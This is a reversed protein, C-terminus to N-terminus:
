ISVKGLAPKDAEVQLLPQGAALSLRTIFSENRFDNPQHSVDESLDELLCLAEKGAALAWAKHVPQFVKKLFPTMEDAFEMSIEIQKKITERVASYKNTPHPNQYWRDGLAERIQEKEAVLNRLRLGDETARDRHRKVYRQLERGSRALCLHISVGLQELIDKQKQDEQLNKDVLVHEKFYQFALEAYRVCEQYFSLATASKKIWSDNGSFDPLATHARLSFFESLELYAAAVYVSNKQEIGKAICKEYATKAQQIFNHHAEETQVLLPSKLFNRAEVYLIEAESIPPAPLAPDKKLLSQVKERNKTSAQKFKEKDKKVAKQREAEINKQKEEEARFLEVYAADAKARDDPSEPTPDVYTSQSIALQVYASLLFNAKMGDIISQVYMRLKILKDYVGTFDTQEPSSKINQITFPENNMLAHIFSHIMQYTHVESFSRNGFAYLKPLLIGLADVIELTMLYRYYTKMIIKHNDDQLKFAESDYEVDSEVSCVTILGNIVREIEHTIQMKNAESADASPYENLYQPLERLLYFLNMYYSFLKNEAAISLVHCVFQLTYFINQNSNQVKSNERFTKLTKRFTGQLKNLLVLTDDKRSVIANKPLEVWGHHYINFRRVSWSVDPLFLSYSLTALNLSEDPLKMEHCHLKIDNSPIKSVRKMVLKNRLADVLDRCYSMEGPHRNWFPSDSLEQLKSRFSVNFNYLTNDVDEESIKQSIFEHGYIADIFRIVACVSQLISRENELFQQSITDEKSKLLPQIKEECGILVDLALSGGKSFWELYIDRMDSFEKEAFVVKEVMKNTYSVCSTSWEACMIKFENTEKLRAQITENVFKDKKKLLNEDFTKVADYYLDGERCQEAPNNQFISKLVSFIDFFKKALDSDKKFKVSILNPIQTENNQLYCQHNLMAKLVLQMDPILNEDVTAPVIANLKEDLESPSHRTNM